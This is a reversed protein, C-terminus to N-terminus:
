LVQINMVTNVLDRLQDRDQALHMWEEIRLLINKNSRIDLKKLTLSFHSSTSDSQGMNVHSSLSLYFVTVLSLPLDSCHIRTSTEKELNVVPLETGTILV